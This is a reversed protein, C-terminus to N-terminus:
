ERKDNAPGGADARPAPRGTMGTAPIGVASAPNGRLGPQPLHDAHGMSRLLMPCADVRGGPLRLHTGLPVTQRHEMM